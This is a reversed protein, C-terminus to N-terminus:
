PCATLNYYQGVVDGAPTWQPYNNVFGTVLGLKKQNDYPADNGAVWAFKAWRDQSFCTTASLFGDYYAKQDAYTPTFNNVGPYSNRVDVAFGYEDIWLPKTAVSKYANILELTKANYAQWSSGTPLSFYLSAAFVAIDPTNANAWMASRKLLEPSTNHSDVGIIEYGVNLSPYTNKVHRWVDKIWEGHNKNLPLVGAEGECKVTTANVFGCPSADGTILVLGINTYNMGTIWSHLWQKDYTRDTAMYGQNVSPVLVVEVGLQKNQTIQLLQNFRSIWYSDPKSASLHDRGILLRVWNIGKQKYSDFLNQLRTQVLPSDINDLVWPTDQREGDLYFFTVGRVDGTANAAVAPAISTACIIALALASLMKKM